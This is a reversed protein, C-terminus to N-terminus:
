GYYVAVVVEVGKGVKGVPDDGPAEHDTAVGKALWGAAPAHLMRRASVGRMVGCWGSRTVQAFLLQLADQLCADGGKDAQLCLEGGLVLQADAALVAEEGVARGCLEDGCCQGTGGGRRGQVVEARGVEVTKQRWPALHGGLCHTPRGAALNLKEVKADRVEAYRVLLPVFVM